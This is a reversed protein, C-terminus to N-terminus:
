ALTVLLRLESVNWVNVLVVPYTTGTERSPDGVVAHTMPMFHQRTRLLYPDLPMGPPLHVIGEVVYPGVLAMVRRKHRHIARGTPAALPPPAVVLLDGRDVSEWTDTAPDTCVRLSARQNLLDTVREETAVLWGEVRAAATFLQIPELRPAIARAASGDTTNTQTGRRITWFPM